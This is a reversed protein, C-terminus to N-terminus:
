GRTGPKPHSAQSALNHLMQQDGRDRNCGGKRRLWDGGAWRRRSRGTGTCDIFRIGGPPLAVQSLPLLIGMWGRAMLNLRRTARRTSCCVAGVVVRFRINTPPLTVEPPSACSVLQCGLLDVTSSRLLNKPAMTAAATQGKTAASACGRGTIGSGPGGARPRHHHFPRRHTKAFPRHDHFPRRQSQTSLRHDQFPRPQPRTSSLHDHFPRRQTQISSGHHHFPRRQTQTFPRQHHYITLTSFCWTVTRSKGRRPLRAFTSARISAATPRYGHLGMM